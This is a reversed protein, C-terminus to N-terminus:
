KKSISSAGSANQELNKPEGSYIIKSAGSADAKLDGSASVAASSAGSAEVEVDEAKLNEADIKSAGSADANIEKAEGVIKIKSAGSAKMELSDAKVNTVVANSAGSIELGEIKPMSIKINIRSKPSIHNKAYIKLTDGSVETIINQLLNDDTEVSVGFDKQATIEVNVANEAEIKTFGSVNRSETKSNGSGREDAFNKAGSFSCNSSFISGIILASIFIALSIKKM